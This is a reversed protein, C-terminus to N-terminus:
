RTEAAHLMESESDSVAVNAPDEVWALLRVELMLPLDRALLPDSTTLFVGRGQAWNEMMKSKCSVSGNVECTIEGTLEGILPVQFM